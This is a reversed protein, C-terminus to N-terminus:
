LYGLGTNFIGIILVRKSRSFQLSAPQMLSNIQSDIQIQRGIQIYVLATQDKNLLYKGFTGVDIHVLKPGYLVVFHDINLLRLM